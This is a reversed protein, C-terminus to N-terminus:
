FWDIRLEGKQEIRPAPLTPAANHKDRNVRAWAGESAEDALRRSSAYGNLEALM